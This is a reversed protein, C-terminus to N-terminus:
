LWLNTGRARSGALTAHMRTLRAVAAVAHFSPLLLNSGVRTRFPLCVWRAHFGGPAVPIGWLAKIIAPLHIDSVAGSVTGSRFRVGGWDGGTCALKHWDSAAAVLSLYPIQTCKVSHSRLYQRQIM